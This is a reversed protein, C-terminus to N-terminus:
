EFFRVIVKAFENGEHPTKFDSLASDLLCDDLEGRMEDVLGVLFNSTMEPHYQSTLIHNGVVFAAYKCFHNRGIPEAGDPLVTVEEKHISYMEIESPVDGLHDPTHSFHTTEKGVSWRGKENLGVKGGLAAAIAQHGFCGGFMKTEAKHMVRILDLLKTIWAEDSNVSAPSGTLIIGDYESSDAPFDDQWVAFCDFKWDPRLPKLLNIYKQDDTIFRKAFDSTDNSTLLIAIKM